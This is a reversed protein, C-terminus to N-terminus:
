TDYKSERRIYANRANTTWVSGMPRMWGPENLSPLPIWAKAGGKPEAIELRSTVQFSRWGAPRPAFSGAVYPPPEQAPPASVSQQPATQAAGMRAAAVLSLAGGAALFHRREM